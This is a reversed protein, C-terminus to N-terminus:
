GVTAHVRHRWRLRHFDQFEQLRKLIAAANLSQYNIGAANLSNGEQFPHDPITSISEKIVGQIPVFIWM